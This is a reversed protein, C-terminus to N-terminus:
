PPDINSFCPEEDSSGIWLSLVMFEPCPIQDEQWVTPGFISAAVWEEVKAWTEFTALPLSALPRQGGVRREPRIPRGPRGHGAQHANAAHYLSERSSVQFHFVGQKVLFM